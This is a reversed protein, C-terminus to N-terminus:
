LNFIGKILIYYWSFILHIRNINNESLYVFCVHKLYVWYYKLVGNIRCYNITLPHNTLDCWPRSWTETRRWRLLSLGLTSLTEIEKPQTNWNCRWPISMEGFTQLAISATEPPELAGCAASLRATLKSPITHTATSFLPRSRPRDAGRPDSSPESGPLCLTWTHVSWSEPHCVFRPSSATCEQGSWCASPCIWFLLVWIPRNHCPCTHNLFPLLSWWLDAKFYYYYFYCLAKLFHQYCIIKCQFIVM